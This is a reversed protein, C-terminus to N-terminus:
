PSLASPLNIPQDERAPVLYGRGLRVPRVSAGLGRVFTRARNREGGTGPIYEVAFNGGSLTLLDGLSFSSPSGFPFAIANIGKELQVTRASAPWPRGSFSFTKASPVGVLYGRNGEIGWATLGSVNGLFLQFRGDTARAAWSGGSDRLLDSVTYPSATTGPDAPLAVLNIGTTVSVSTLSSFVFNQGRFRSAIDAVALTVGAPTLVRPIGSPDVMEVTISDGPGAVPQDLSALIAEYSGNGGQVRGSGSIGRAPNFLVIQSGDGAPGGRDSFIRGALRFQLPLTPPPEVRLLRTATGTRSQSDTATLTIVHDGPTALVASVPSGTGLSGELQSSFALSSSGLRTGTSDFAEGRFRLTEGAVTSSGELPELIRALIGLSVNDVTFGTTSGAAGSAGGGAARPTFRLIVGTQRASTIDGASNWLFRHPSGDPAATLGTLAEGGTAATAVSFSSGNDTSFEVTVDASDGEADLLAYAISAVGQIDDAPTTAVARPPNNTAAALNVTVAQQATTTGDAVVLQFALTGTSDQNFFVAPASTSSLAVATGSTQSWTYTLPDGDPDSSEAADLIVRGPRADITSATVIAPPSNVTSTVVTVTGASTAAPIPAVASSDVLVVRDLRVDTPGLGLARFGVTFLTRAGASSAGAAPGLRALGIVLRGTKGDELAEARITSTTGGTNLFSGEGISPQIGNSIDDDADKLTLRRPDYVIDLSGGYLNATSSMTLRLQFDTESKVTPSSLAVQTSATLPAATLIFLCISVLIPAM